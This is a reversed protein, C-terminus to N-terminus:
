SMAFAELFDARCAQSEEARKEEARARAEAARMLDELLTVTQRKVTKRLMGAAGPIRGFIGDQAELAQDIHITAAGHEGEALWVTAVHTRLPFAPVLLETHLRMAGEDLAVACTSEVIGHVPGCTYACRQALVARGDALPPLLTTSRVDRLAGVASSGSMASAVAPWALRPSCRLAVSGIVSISKRSSTIDVVAKGPARPQPKDRPPAAPQESCSKQPHKYLLLSFPLGGGDSSSATSPADSAPALASALERGRRTKAPGPRRHKLVLALGTLSYAMLYVLAPAPGGELLKM